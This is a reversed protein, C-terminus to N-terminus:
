AHPEEPKGVLEPVPQPKSSDTWMREGIPWAELPIGGGLLYLAWHTRIFFAATAAPGGVLAVSRSSMCLGNLVGVVDV